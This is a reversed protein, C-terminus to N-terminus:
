MIFFFFVMQSCGFWVLYWIARDGQFSEPLLKAAAMSHTGYTQHDWLASISGESDTEYSHNMSSFISALRGWM